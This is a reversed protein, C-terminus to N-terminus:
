REAKRSEYLAVRREQICLVQSWISNVLNRRERNIKQRKVHQMRAARIKRRTAESHKRGTQRTRILKALEPNEAYTDRLSQRIKRRTELKHPLGVNWPSRGSNASSIKDRRAEEAEQSRAFGNQYAYGEVEQSERQGSGVDAMAASARSSKKSARGSRGDLVHNNHNASARCRQGAGRPEPRSRCLPLGTGHIGARVVRACRVSAMAM